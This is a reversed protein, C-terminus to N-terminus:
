RHTFKQQLKPTPAPSVDPSLPPLPPTSSSGHPHQLHDDNINRYGIGRLEMVRNVECDAADAWDVAGNAAAAAAAAATTDAVGVGSDCTSISQGSRKDLDCSSGASQHGSSPTSSGETPSVAMSASKAASPADYDGYTIFVPRGHKHGASATAVSTISSLSSDHQDGGSVGVNGVGSHGAAAGIKHGNNEKTQPFHMTDDYLVVQPSPVGGGGGGGVGGSHQTKAYSESAGNYQCENLDMRFTVSPKHRLSFPSHTISSAAPTANDHTPNLTLKALVSTDIDSVSANSADAKAATSRGYSGWVQSAPHLGSIQSHIRQNISHIADPQRLSLNESMNPSAPSTSSASNNNETSQCESIALPGTIEVM